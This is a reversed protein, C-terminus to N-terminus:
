DFDSGEVEAVLTEFYQRLLCQLSRQEATFELHM